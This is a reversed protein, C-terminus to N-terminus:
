EIARRDRDDDRGLWARLTRRPPEAYADGIVKVDGMVVTATVVVRPAPQGPPAERVALKKDGMVAIGSLQVDVGDPVYVKVDGMVAVATIQVEGRPVEAGRLDLVVDGMVAVAALPREVRWRGQRRSDGMVAVVWEKDAARPAPPAPAAPSAPDDPLDATIPVLEGRTTATYAAGTRETLEGLTLRGETTAVRLREVVAEREADSARIAGPEPQGPEDTM